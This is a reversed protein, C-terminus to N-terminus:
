TKNNIERITKCISFSFRSIQETVKDQKRGRKRLTGIKLCETPCKLKYRYKRTISNAGEDTSIFAEVRDSAFKFIDTKRTQLKSLKHEKMLKKEFILIEGLLSM